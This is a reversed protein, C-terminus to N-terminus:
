NKRTRNCCNKRKQTKRQKLKRHRVASGDGGGGAGAIKEESNLYVSSSQNINMLKLVKNMFIEPSPYMSGTGVGYSYGEGRRIKTSLFNVHNNQIVIEPLSSLNYCTMVKKRDDNISYEILCNNTLEFDGNKPPNEVLHEETNEASAAFTQSPNAQFYLNPPQFGRVLKGGKGGKGGKSPDATYGYENGIGSAFMEIILIYYYVLRDLFRSDSYFM